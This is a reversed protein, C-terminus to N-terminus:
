RKIQLYVDAEGWTFTASFRKMVVFLPKDTFDTLPYSVTIIKSGSDLSSLRQILKELFPAEFCTGYMFIASAGTLDTELIDECRFEIDHLEYTRKVANAKKIFAPVFDIGVVKCGIFCNLWFCGRGRGCGLEFVKNAASLQCVNAIHDLTTLPTEGYAYIDSAGRKQLFKKSITFPSRFIYKFLLSSDIKMFTINPYYRAVVKLYEFFNRKKVVLNLWLLSFFGLDDVSPQEAVKAQFLKGM